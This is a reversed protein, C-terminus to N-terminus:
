WKTPWENEGFPDEDNEPSYFEDWFDPISSMNELLFQWEDGTLSEGPSLNYAIIIDEVLASNEVSSSSWISASDPLGGFAFQLAFDQVFNFNKFQSLIMFMQVLNAEQSGPQVSNAYAMEASIGAIYDDYHTGSIAGWGGGHGDPIILELLGTIDSWQLPNAWAFQYPNVQFANGLAPWVPDRSIFRATSADYYRARMQYLCGSNGEQRVGWQGNFTFPQPNSGTHGLLRGYPTYAYSDTVAGSGDTLALTSGTHDFHYFYVENGDAADVMYLLEGEPTWVYYRLFQEGAEEREAVIPQLGIAYNYYYHITAGDETRTVLDDLGNYTLTVDDIGTLRSADDWSFTRDPSATLRGRQDYSFGSSSVQSAADYTFIDTDGALLAAPDLPVVMDAQTVQGAADLTYQIDIITGDQIHIIRGVDDRTLTTNVSNSREIGVLKRDSDYSFDVWANTLGDSVRSLLGTVIDYTYSVTFAGNNYTVTKLKGGDDYTAGFDVGSSQTNIVRAEVDRTLTLGNTAALDDREDYAFQLDTGDSYLRRTLNGHDDYTRTLTRGDPYTTQDLRGRNDYDHHLTNGLPDMETQLRGMGTYGFTWTQDNQDTLQEVLGLGNRLYQVMGVAPMSINTLWGENDYGYTTIRGLLDTVRTVRSMADRTLTATRNMPDTIATTYGLANTQYTIQHGLPTTLSSVVGEDTYGVQWTQGGRTVQNRWGRPDYGYSIQFGNPDTVSALCGMDDYTMYTNKGLRDTIQTVRDMLDYAYQTANGAPDTVQVLNGNADYTYTYTHDNEDTISTIRDNMDYATQTFSGDPYTTRNRRKYDDYGYAITGIDSDTSSALTGDANYTHTIVGGLPNAITLVQGQSNYTYTWTKDSRDVRTLMNGKADYTFQENTGDTYDIRTRNYFTFDVTEANIPNTFTQNQAEYSYAFVHGLSNTISALNGTEAHYDFATSGGLRDTVSTMQEYDNKAFDVTNGAADTLSKPLSNYSHHQYVVENGDPRDETVQNQNPDYTLTTTNGYADTQEVVRVTYMGDLVPADYAQSYPVNGRPRAVSVINDFYINFPNYPDQVTTYAFTTTQGLPDTVSRLTWFGGNDAGNDFAFSVQRGAQDTVATLHDQPTDSYTFDLSRGLGDEIRIPNNQDPAAYTYILQNGNRDVVRVIRGMDFQNPPSGITVKEFIHVREAIPDMLYLYDTTEKLIYRVASGNDVYGFDTPDPLVWEDGAKKFSVTNGNAMQITWVDVDGVWGSPVFVASYKPSWWFRHPFDTPQSPGMQVFDSRYILSFGLGMPGGLDLLPMTFHYTGNNAAIPDGLDLSEFYDLISGWWLYEPPPDQARAPPAAPLVGVLLCLALFLCLANTAFRINHTKLKM